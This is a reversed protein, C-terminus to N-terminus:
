YIEENRAGQLISQLLLTLSNQYKDFQDVKYNKTITVIFDYNEDFNLTKSIIERVQRKIKNRIVANGHKKTILIGVRTYECRRPQYYIKFDSNRKYQNKSIIVQFESYKKIVNKKKM